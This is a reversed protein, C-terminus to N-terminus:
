NTAPKQIMGTGWQDSVAALKGNVFKAEFMKESAVPRRYEDVLLGVTQKTAADIVDGTSSYVYKGDLGITVWAPYDQVEPEEPGRRLKLKM